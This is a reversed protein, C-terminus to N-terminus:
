RNDNKETYSEFRMYPKNFKLKVRGTPGNRQKAVDLIRIEIPSDEQKEEEEEGKKKKKRERDLLMIVDADQEISGSDRLDAITPYGEQKEVQRGLQSMAVIPIDLERALAKLSMSIESFQEWRPIDKREAQILGLYDIFIIQVGKQKHMRRAEARLDLLKMAPADSIYLEA